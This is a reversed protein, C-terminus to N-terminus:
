FHSAYMGSREGVPSLLGVGMMGKEVKLGMHMYMIFPLDVQVVSRRCVV